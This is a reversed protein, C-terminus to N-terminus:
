IKRGTIARLHNLIGRHLMKKYPGSSFESVRYSNSGNGRIHPCHKQVLDMCYPHYPLWDSLVEKIGSDEYLVTPDNDEFRGGCMPCAKNYLSSSYPFGKNARETNKKIYQQVAKNKQSKSPETDDYFGFPSLHAFDMTDINDNNFEPIDSDITVTNWPVPIKRYLKREPKSEKGCESCRLTKDEDEKNLGGCYECHVLENGWYRQNREETRHQPRPLGVPQEQRPKFNSPQAAEHYWAM